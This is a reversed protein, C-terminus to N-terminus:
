FLTTLLSFPFIQGNHTHGSLQLDFHGASKNGVIPQHKLLLTFLDTSLNSLLSYESESSVVGQSSGSPDNVGVIHLLNKLTLYVTILLILGNM